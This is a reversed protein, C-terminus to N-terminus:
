LLSLFKLNSKGLRKAMLSLWGRSEGICRQDLLKLLPTDAAWAGVGADYAGYFVSTIDSFIAALQHGSKLCEHRHFDQLLVEALEHFQVEGRPHVLNEILDRFPLSFGPLIEALEKNPGFGLWTQLSDDLRPLSFDRVGHEEDAFM